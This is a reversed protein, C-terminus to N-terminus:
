RTKITAKVGGKMDLLKDDNSFVVTSANVVARESELKVSDATMISEEEHWDMKEAILDIEEPYLTGTISGTIVLKERDGDYVSLPASFEFREDEDGPNRYFTGHSDIFRAITGGTDTDLKRSVIHLVVRGEDLISIEPSTVKVEPPADKGRDRDTQEAEEVNKRFEIAGSDPAKFVYYYTTWLALLVLGPLLFYYFLRQFLIQLFM